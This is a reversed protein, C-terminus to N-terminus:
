KPRFGFGFSVGYVFVARNPSFDFAVNPTVSFSKHFFDYLIGIRYVFERSAERVHPEGDEMETRRLEREFGPGTSFRLSRTAHITLPFIFLEDRFDGGAYEFDLGAGFRRHFRFEYDGGVTMGNEGEHHSGGLFFSLHHQHYEEESEGGEKHVVGPSQPQAEQASLCSGSLALLAVLTLIKNPSM